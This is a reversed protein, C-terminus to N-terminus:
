FSAAADWPCDFWGDWFPVGDVPGPGVDGLIGPAGDPASAVGDSGVTSTIISIALSNRRIM